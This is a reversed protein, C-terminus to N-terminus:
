DIYGLSRLRELVNQDLGSAEPGHPASLDGYDPVHRPPHAASFAPDLAGSLARGELGDAAPLDLLELLTPLIDVLRAGEIRAGPRV